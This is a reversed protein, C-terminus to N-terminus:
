PKAANPQGASASADISLRVTTPVASVKTGPRIKQLGEAVIRDGPALGDTVLWANGVARDTRIQRPAVKQNADVLWVQPHGGSDRVVAQQPVLIANERVGQDVWGRVFMGPLLDQRPNTVLARLEVTNTDTEVTIDSFLM